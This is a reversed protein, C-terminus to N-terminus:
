EESKIERYLLKLNIRLTHSLCTPMYIRRPILTDRGVFQGAAPRINLFFFLRYVRINNEKNKIFIMTDGKNARNKM